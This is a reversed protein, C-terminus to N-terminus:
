EPSGQRDTAESAAYERLSKALEADTAFRLVDAAEQAWQSWRPDAHLSQLFPSNLIEFYLEQPYSYRPTQYLQETLRRLILFGKDTEGRFGLVHVARALSYNDGDAILRNLARNANETHGAQFELMGDAQDRAPGAPLKQTLSAATDYDQQVIAIWIALEIDNNSWPRPSIEMARQFATRAEDMRGAWFLYSVLNNIHLYAVPDLRVARQQLAVSTDPGATTMAFGALMGQVMPNNRGYQMATYIQEVAPETLGESWMLQAMRIRAEPNNPELELAKELAQRTMVKAEDEPLRDREPINEEMSLIYATSALGIWASALGPDLIVAEEFDRQALLVDGAGRRGYFYKGRLYLEWARLNRTAPVPNASAGTPVNESLDIFPLVAISAKQDLLAATQTHPPALPRYWWNAGVAMALLVVALITWLSPARWWSRDQTPTGPKGAMTVEVPLDFLYGRRPITRVITRQDDDLAKRIETLCQTLSDDTVIVDPWVAQILADRSVLRGAHKLLFLLVDFSKPRLPIETGNQVLVGRDIDLTFPGFCLLPPEAASEMLSSTDNQVLV